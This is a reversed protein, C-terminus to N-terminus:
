EKGILRKGNNYGLKYYELFRNEALETLVDDCRLMQGIVLQRLENDTINDAKDLFSQLEKLYKRNKEKWSRNFEIKNKKLMRVGRVRVINKTVRITINQKTYTIKICQM